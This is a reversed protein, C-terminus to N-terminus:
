YTFNANSESTGLSTGGNNGNIAPATLASVVYCVNGAAINWNTTNGSCTNRVIFNGASTARIGEDSGTCNNGEVRNDTGAIRIGAGSGTGVGNGICNNGRITCGGVVFIGDGTNTMSACDVITGGGSIDFGALGNGEASCNRITCASYIGFGDQGNDVASCDSVVCALGIVFGAAGNEFASCGTVASGADAEIGPGQGGFVECGTVVAGLGAWIGPNSGHTNGVRLNEVRAGISGDLLVGGWNRISGNRIEVGRHGGAETTIAAGTGAQTGAMDFGGLDITVGDSAILIGNMAAGAAAVNGTLYYSGPQTIKFQCTQDGPTTASSIPIRPQVENLTKYTSTVPGVPPTLPGATLLGAASVLALASLCVMRIKM